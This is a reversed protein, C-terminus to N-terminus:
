AVGLSSLALVAVHVDKHRLFFSELLVECPHSVPVPSLLVMLNHKTMREAKARWPVRTAMTTVKDSLIAHQVLKSILRSVGVM